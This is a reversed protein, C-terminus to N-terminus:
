GAMVGSIKRSNSNLHVSGSRGAILGRIFMSNPRNSDIALFHIKLQTLIEMCATAEEGIGFAFNWIKSNSQTDQFYPTLDSLISSDNAALNGLRKIEDEARRLKIGTTEISEDAEIDAIFDGNVLVKAQIEAKLNGPVLMQELETLKALSTTDFKAKDLRITRRVGIWGEPWGDITSFKRAADALLEYAFAESWLGRFGRGLLRRASNGRQSSECGIEIALEIFIEYWNRAEQHSAPHWGYGRKLAGFDFGDHSSFHNTTLAAQLLDLGIRQRPANSSFILKRVYEARNSPLALTGSLYIFFLSKLKESTPDSRHDEPEELAFSLLGGAADEFLNSEYALSRLIRTYHARNRNSTSLFSNNNVARLIANLAARQNLPAINAFMQRQIDSHSFVDGLIGRPSLWNQAIDQAVQSEHLYGLRRSFSRAVRETSNSIFLTMLLTTPYTQIAKLALRNSIAHPLVARWKGREQILGRRQLESMNRFFTTVSVEALGSLLALESSTTIDEADFSYLLSAIEACRQLEANVSNKQHFLRDFLESDKLQALEGKSESTSALAFAVRANGGSFEVIKRIDIESLLQYRRKILKAIVEDSAGGLHYCSTGEPLDDRIDYEITILRLKSSAQKVLETLQQHVGQGCNDVIVVSDSGALKLAELMAIPQPTPNHSLDTYLVNQPNLEQCATLLRKDFLAQAFRTKGVGSLGVIRASTRSQLLEDRLRNIASSIDLGDESNPVRVKIKDDLFYENEVDTEYYAWPAYPQWGQIPRGLIQKLWVVLAPFREVWDALKRSDYFDLDVKGSLGHAELCEAMAQKRAKLSSDSLDDKTSAIIYAGGQEGLESIAFRLIGSPAMEAPIKAPSFSEAKVQFATSDRPLYGTCGHSPSVDVRVDVGGDKARQDGGWTVFAASLGNEKLEAQCLRAILERAQGDTLSQIDQKV